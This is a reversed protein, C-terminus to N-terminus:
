ESDNDEEIKYFCHRNYPIGLYKLFAGHIFDDTLEEQSVNHLIYEITGVFQADFILTLVM